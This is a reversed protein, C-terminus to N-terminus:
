ALPPARLSPPPSGPPRSSPLRDLAPIPLAPSVVPERWTFVVVLAAVSVLADVRTAPAVQIRPHPHDPGDPHSLTPGGDQAPAHDHSDATIGARAHEAAHAEWSHALGHALATSPGALGAALGILLALVRHALSTRM